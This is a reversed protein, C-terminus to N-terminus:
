ALRVSLLKSVGPNEMTIGYLTSAAEMTRKSHTIIIFQTQRSMERIKETFRGINVEDLPADVEDLLCFPSPKYRFIALVLAIATMAKEGGSLLLVNQLRKGPPQAIIEIGSELIDNEDILRMEGHGGGFLEQFTQSFNANITEFAERFREKSRRKIETIAAQTDSIASEIDAKQSKLFALREAASSMEDLAVLNVPGLENIRSRAEALHAKLAELDHHSSPPYSLTNIKEDEDAEGIGSKNETQYREPSSDGAANTIVVSLDEGLENLCNEKLHEVNSNLRAMEVEAAAQEDRLRMLHEHAQRINEETKGLDSRADTLQIAYHAFSGSQIRHDEELATLTSRFSSLSSRLESIQEETQSASLRYHALRANVENSESNLRRLDNQLSRRREIRTALDSRLTSLKAMRTEADRRYNSVEAQALTIQEKLSTHEEEAKGASISAQKQKATTMELDAEAQALERKVIQSHNSAREHERTFQQLQENLVAIIQESQRLRADLEHRQNNFQNISENLELLPKEAAQASSTLAILNQELLAVERKLNLIGSNEASTCGGSILQGGYVSLGSRSIFLVSDNQCSQRIAEEDTEVVMARALLPFAKGFAERLNHPLGLLSILQTTSNDELQDEGPFNNADSPSTVLFSARGNQKRALHQIASYADSLSRALVSELEASMCNQVALEFGETVQVYDALIGVVHFPQDYISDRTPFWATSVSDNGLAQGSEASQRIVQQVAESSWARCEILERLSSLRYKAETIKDGLNSFLKEATEKRIITSSLADGLEQMASLMKEQEALTLKLESSVWEMQGLASSLQNTARDRELELGKIQKSVREAADTFQNQMQFWRESCAASEAIGRMLEELKREAASDREQESINEKETTELIGTLEDAKSIIDTLEREIRITESEITRQRALLSEEERDRGTSASSLGEIQESLHQQQQKNREIELTLAAVAQRSLDAKDELSNILRAISSRSQEFEALMAQVTLKEDTTHSLHKELTHIKRDSQIYEVTFICRLLTRAEERLRQYRRARAAQRKLNNHQREVELTIDTVRSLNQRAAELRLESTRQKMRFISIGAAEEILVRRELPKASLVQGVRGQEIIAYHQGGLGTGAFLEQIDRLRCIKGNMEYESEGSRYLRRAINIHEGERFSRKRPPYKKKTGDGSHIAQDHIDPSTEATDIAFQNQVALTLMVEAMGSPPRNHNGQFIVDEMKGGRLLRVKQEGIVWNVADAINSKGCGNPGIIATIGHSDFIVETPDCFSKFGSLFIKEIKLM